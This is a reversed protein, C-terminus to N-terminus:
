SQCRFDTGIAIVLLLFCLLLLLFFIGRRPPVASCSAVFAGGSDRHVFLRGWCRGRVEERVFSVCISLGVCLAVIGTGM